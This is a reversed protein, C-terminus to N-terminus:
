PARWIADGSRDRMVLAPDGNEDTGIALRSIAGAPLAGLSMIASGDEYVSVLVRITDDTGRMTLIPLGDEGVGLRGIQKGAKDVVVFERAEVRTAPRAQGMLFVSALMTLVLLGALKLRRNERELRGLRDALADISSPEMRTESFQALGEVLRPGRALQAVLSM